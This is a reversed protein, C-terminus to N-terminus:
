KNTKWTSFNWAKVRYKGQDDNLPALNFTINEGGGGSTVGPGTAGAVSEINVGAAFYYVKGAEATFSTVDISKKLMRLSSQWSACLHHVGPDVEVAFYSNGNNAGMWAGDMGYRITAKKGFGLGQNENEIFVIQAKGNVPPSPPPQDKKTKVDFQTKDDGCADPLTTGRARAGAVSMMCLILVLIAQKM